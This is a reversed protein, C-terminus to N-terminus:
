DSSRVNQRWKNRQKNVKDRNMKRYKKRAISKCKRCLFKNGFYEKIHGYKCFLSRPKVKTNKKSEDLKIKELYEKNRKNTCTRCSKTYLGNTRKKYYINDDSFEHGNSCLKRHNRKKISCDMSNDQSTGAILHDPNVCAPTDCKHMVILGNIAGHYLIYVVRTVLLSKKKITITGYGSRISSGAFLICGTNPEFESKNLIKEKYFSIEKESLGIDILSNYKTKRTNSLSITTEM